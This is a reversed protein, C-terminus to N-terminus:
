HVLKARERTVPKMQRDKTFVLLAARGLSRSSPTSLRWCRGAWVDATMMSAIAISCIRLLIGSLNESKVCITNLLIKNCAPSAVFTSKTPSWYGSIEIFFMRSLLPLLLWSAMLMVVLLQAWPLPFFKHGSTAIFLTQQVKEDMFPWCVLSISLLNSVTYQVDSVFVSTGFKVGKLYFSRLLHQPDEYCEPLPLYSSTEERRGHKQLHVDCCQLIRTLYLHRLVPSGGDFLRGASIISILPVLLLDGKTLMLRSQSFSPWLTHWTRGLKCAELPQSVALENTPFPLFFASLNILSSWIELSVTWIRPSVMGSPSCSMM